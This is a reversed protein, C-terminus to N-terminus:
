QFFKKKNPHQTNNKFAIEPGDSVFFCVLRHGFLATARPPCGAAFATVEMEIISGPM